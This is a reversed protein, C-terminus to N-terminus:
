HTVYRFGIDDQGQDDSATNEYPPAGFHECTSLWSGGVAEEGLLWESTNGCLNYIGDPTAGEWLMSVDIPRGWGSELSNCRYRNYENGWPYKRGDSGRVACEWEYRTPLTFVRGERQSKWRCFEEAERYSINTVPWNRESDRFRHTPKFESYENNSVAFRAILFRGIFHRYDNGDVYEGEGLPVLAQMPLSLPSTKVVCRFGIQDETCDAEVLRTSGFFTLGYLRGDIAWSAGRIHKWVRHNKVEGGDIWEAVNGALDCVGCPSRVSQYRHVEVPEPGPTNADFLAGQRWRDGWPYIRAGGDIAFPDSTGVGKAAKEWQWSTPLGYVFGNGARRAEQSKWECYAVADHYSVNVVPLREKGSPLGAQPWHTPPPHNASQVFAAYEENTVEFQQIHFGDVHVTGAPWTERALRANIPHGQGELFNLWGDRPPCPHYGIFLPGGPVALFGSPPPSSPVVELPVARQAKNGRSDRLRLPITTRVHEPLPVGCISGWPRFHLEEPLDAEWCYPEHGGRAFLVLDAHDGENASVKETLIVPANGRITLQFRCQTGVGDVSEVRVLVEFQGSALPTGVLAGTKSDLLLGSPLGKAQWKYPARGREARLRLEYSVGVQGEPLSVIETTASVAGQAFDTVIVPAIRLIVGDESNMYLVPTSYESWDPLRKFWLERRAMWVADDLQGSNALERYFSTAFHKAAEDSIRFQMGVVASFESAFQSVAATECGNLVILRMSENGLLVTIVDSIDRWDSQQNHNEFQLRTRWGDPTKANGHGIFHFVHIGEIMGEVRQLTAEGASIVKFQITGKSHAELDKMANIEATSDLRDHSSLDTPSPAVVLVRLPPELDLAARPLVNGIRRVFSVREALALEESVKKLSLPRDTCIAELPVSALRVGTDAGFKFVLRVHNAVPDPFAQNWATLIDERRINTAFLGSFVDQGLTRRFADPSIFGNSQQTVPEAIKRWLGRVEIGRQKALEQTFLELLDRRREWDRLTTATIDVPYTNQM